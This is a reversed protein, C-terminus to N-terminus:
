WSDIIERVFEIQVFEPCFYTPPMESLVSFLSSVALTSFSQSVFGFSSETFTDQREGQKKNAAVFCFGGVLL